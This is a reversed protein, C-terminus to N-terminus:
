VCVSARECLCVCARVCVCRTLVCQPRKAACACAGSHLKALVHHGRPWAAEYAALLEPLRSELWPHTSIFARELVYLDVAMDEVMGSQYALGFDLLVLANSGKRLMMNSTTLDGHVIDEAHLRAVARGVSALLASLADGHAGGDATSASAAAATGAAAAAAATAAAHDLLHQKVTVGDVDEMFLSYSDLDVRYLTPVDIGLKQCRVMVRAELQVRRPTIRRDLEPVRYKKEFRQKVICTRGLFSRRYVRQHGRTLARM